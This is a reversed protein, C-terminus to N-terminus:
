VNSFGKFLGAAATSGCETHPVDLKTQKSDNIVAICEEETKGFKPLSWRAVTHASKLYIHRFSSRAGSSAKEVEDGKLREIKTKVEIALSFLATLM